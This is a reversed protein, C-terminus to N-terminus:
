LVRFNMVANVLAGWSDREQALDSWGSRELTDTFISFLFDRVASLPHDELKPNPRPTLFKEGYLRITSCIM